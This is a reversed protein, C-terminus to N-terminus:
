ENIASRTEILAEVNQREIAQMHNRKTVYRQYKEREEASWANAETYDGCFPVFLDIWCALKDWEERSLQVGYHGSELVWLLESRCAGATTTWGTFALTLAAKRSIRTTGAWRRM